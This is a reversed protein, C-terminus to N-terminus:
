LVRGLRSLERVRVIEQIINLKVSIIGQLSRLRSAADAALSVNEAIGLFCASPEDHSEVFLLIGNLENSARTCIQKSKRSDSYFVSFETPVGKVKRPEWGPILLLANKESLKLLRRKVTRLSVRAEKSIELQSKQMDDRISEYIQLDNQTLRTQCQPFKISALHTQRFEGAECLKKMQADLAEKRGYVLVFSLANGYYLTINRVSRIQSLERIMKSCSEEEQFELWIRAAKLSLVNPNIMASWGLFIGNESLKALRHRVTDKDVDLKEAIRRLSPLSSPFPDLASSGGRLERMIKVDLSDM